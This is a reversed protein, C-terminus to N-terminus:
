KLLFETEMAWSSSPDKRLLTAKSATIFHRREESCRKSFSDSVPFGAPIKFLSLHPSYNEGVFNSGFRREKYTIENDGAVRYIELISLLRDHMQKLRSSANIRFVVDSPQSTDTDTFIELSKTQLVPNDISPLIRQAMAIMQTPQYTRFPPIVTIHFPIESKNISYGLGLELSLDHAEARFINSEEASPVLCFLYKPLNNATM